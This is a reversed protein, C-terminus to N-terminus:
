VRCQMAHEHTIFFLMFKYIVMHVM